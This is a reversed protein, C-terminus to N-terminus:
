PRFDPGLTFMPTIWSPCDQRAYIVIGFSSRDIGRRAQEMSTGTTCVDDVILTSGGNPSCYKKLAEALRLGGRPVGHVKGFSFARKIILALTEIDEDTLGDCNINFPLKLGSHSVFPENQFTTM